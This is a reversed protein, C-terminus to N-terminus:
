WYENILLKPLKPQETTQFRREMPRKQFNNQKCSAQSSQKNRSERQYTASLGTRVFWIGRWIGSCTQYILGIKEIKIPPIKGKPATKMSSNKIRDAM